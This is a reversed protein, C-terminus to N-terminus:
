NSATRPLNFDIQTEIRKNLQMTVREELKRRLERSEIPSVAKESIQGKLSINAKATSLVLLEDSLREQNDANVSTVGGLVVLAAAIIFSKM